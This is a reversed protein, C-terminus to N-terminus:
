KHHQHIEDVFGKKKSSIIKQRSFTSHHVSVKEFYLMDKEAIHGYGHLVNYAVEILARLHNKTITQLLARRQRKNTRLLLAIFYAEILM